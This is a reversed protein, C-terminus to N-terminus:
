QLFEHMARVGVLQKCKEMFGKPPRAALERTEADVLLYEEEIGISLSETVKIM